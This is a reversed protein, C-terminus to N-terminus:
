TLSVVQLPIRSIIAGDFWIDFSYLGPRPIPLGNIAFVVNQSLFFSGEPIHEITIEIHPGRDPLITRGDSDILVADIQHSGIDEERFLLRLAISCHHHHCPFSHSSLTDFCGLICLHGRYDTASDCLVALLADM